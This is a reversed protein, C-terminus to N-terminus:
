LRLVHAFVSFCGALVYCVHGTTWIGPPPTDKNQASIEQAQDKGDANRHANLDSANQNKKKGSDGMLSLESCVFAEGALMEFGTWVLQLSM